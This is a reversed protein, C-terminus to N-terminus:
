PGSLSENSDSLRVSLETQHQNQLAGPRKAAPTQNLGSLGPVSNNKQRRSSFL